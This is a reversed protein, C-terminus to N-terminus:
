LRESQSHSIAAIASAPTRPFYPVLTRIQGTVFVTVMAPMRVVLKTFPVLQNRVPGCHSVLTISNVLERREATVLPGAVLRAGITIRGTPQGPAAMSSNM